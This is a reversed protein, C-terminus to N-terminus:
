WECKCRDPGKEYVASVRVPGGAHVRKRRHQHGSGKAPGVKRELREVKREGGQVQREKSRVLGKHNGGESVLGADSILDAEGEVGGGRRRM